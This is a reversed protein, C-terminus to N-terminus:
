KGGQGNKSPLKDSVKDSLKEANELWRGATKTSVGYKQTIEERTFDLLRVRESDSFHRWDTKSTDTVKPASVATVKAKERAIRVEKNAEVRALEIQLRHGAEVEEVAAARAQQSADAEEAVRLSDTLAAVLYVVAAVIPIPRITPNSWFLWLGVATYIGLLLFAIAARTADNRRAFGELAHGSLIGTAEIGVATLAAGIAVAWGWGGPVEMSRTIEYTLFVIMATPTALRALHLLINIIMKGGDVRGRRRLM